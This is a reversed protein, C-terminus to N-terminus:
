VYFDDEDSSRCSGVSHPAQCSPSDVSGASKNQQGRRPRPPPAAQRPQMQQPVNATGGIPIFISTEQARARALAAQARLHVEQQTPPLMGAVPATEIEPGVNPPPAPSYVPSGPTKFDARYQSGPTQRPQEGPTGLTSPGLAFETDPDASPTVVPPSKVRDLTFEVYPDSPPAAFIDLSQPPSAVGRM